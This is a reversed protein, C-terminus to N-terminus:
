YSPQRSLPSGSRTSPLLAFFSNSAVSFQSDVSEATERLDLLRYLPRGNALNPLPSGAPASIVRNEEAFYSIWEFRSPASEDVLIVANRGVQKTLEPIRMYAADYGPVARMARGLVRVLSRTSLCVVLVVSALAWLRAGRRQRRIRTLLLSFTVAWVPVAHLLSKSYGYPFGLWRNALLTLGVPLVLLLILRKEHPRAALLGVAITSLLLLVAVGEIPSALKGPPDPADLYFPELGAIVALSPFYHLDGFITRAERTALDNSSAQAATFQVSRMFGVTNAAIALVSALALGALMQLARPRARLVLVLAILAALIWLVMAEPYLTWEAALALALLPAARLTGSRMLVILHFLFFLYLAAACLVGLHQQFLNMPPVSNLGVLAATVVLFKGNSARTRSLLAGAGFLISMGLTLGLISHVEHARVGYIQVLFALLYPAGGRFHVSRWMLPILRLYGGIDQPVKWGFRAISDAVSCEWPADTVASLVAGPGHSAIPVSALVSFSAAALLLYVSSRSPRRIELPRRYASIALLIASLAAMAIGSALPRAGFISGLDIAVALLAFGATPALFPSTWRAAIRLFGWGTLTLWLSFLLTRLIIKTWIAATKSELLPFPRVEFSSSTCVFLTGTRSFALIEAQHIGPRVGRLSITAKWASWTFSPEGFAQAVDPRYGFVTIDAKATWDLRAEM